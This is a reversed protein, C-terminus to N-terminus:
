PATHQAPFTGDTVARQVNAAGSGELEGMGTGTGGPKGTTLAMAQATVELNREAAKSARSARWPNEKEEQQPAGPDLSATVRGKADSSHGEAM